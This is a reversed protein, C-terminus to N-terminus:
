GAQRTLYNTRINKDRLYNNSDIGGTELKEDISNYNTGGPPVRLSVASFGFKNDIIFKFLEKRLREIDFTFELEQIHDIIQYPCHKQYLKILNNM